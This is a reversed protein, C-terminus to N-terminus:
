WLRRGRWWGGLDVLHSVYLQVVGGGWWGGVVGGGSPDEVWDYRFQLPANPHSLAQRARLMGKERPTHKHDPAVWGALPSWSQEDDM